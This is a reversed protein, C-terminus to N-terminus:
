TLGNGKILKERGEFIQTLEGAKLRVAVGAPPLKEPELPM